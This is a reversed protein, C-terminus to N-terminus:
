NNKLLQLRLIEHCRWRYEEIYLLMLLLVRQTSNCVIYKAQRNIYKQWSLQRLLETPLYSYSVCKLCVEVFLDDEDMVYVTQELGM